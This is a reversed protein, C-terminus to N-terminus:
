SRSDRGQVERERLHNLITNNQLKRIHENLELPKWQHQKNNIARLREPFEIPVRLQHENLMLDLWTQLLELCRNDFVPVRLTPFNGHFSFLVNAKTGNDPDYNLVIKTIYSHGMRARLTTKNDSGVCAILDLFCDNEDSEEADSDDFEYWYAEFNGSFTNKKYVPTDRAGFNLFSNSIISYKDTSYNMQLGQLHGDGTDVKINVYEVDVYPPFQQGMEDRLKDLETEPINDLVQDLEDQEMDSPYRDVEEM